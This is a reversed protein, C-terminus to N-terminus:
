KLGAEKWFSAWEKLVEDISKKGLLVEQMTREQFETWKGWKEHWIPQKTFQYHQPDSFMEYWGKYLDSKFYPDNEYVRIDPPLVGYEKCWYALVKPSNFFEIFKWALDKHKSYSVIGWGSFGYHPYAKGAVGVPLPYTGFLDTPLTNKLFGLTDPDQFLIPAIGSTFSNIQEAFGWNIADKPATDKFLKVYLELGLKARPDEWILKGDKTLYMNEPDIDDFFSTVVLDIFDTPYGKGRFNFGYQGKKPNTIFRAMGYMELMTKPPNTIGYKKLVDKRIFLTKAYVANPILYATGKYIRAFELLNPLMYKAGDWKAIYPELNELAGMAALTSLSWDGVEVIDIPQKASIMTYIKQYATEYPPSILKIKVGPNQAEFESIIKKLVKDREPSTFVEVITLVTESFILAALLLVTLVLLKRVYM